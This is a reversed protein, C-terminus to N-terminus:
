DQSKPKVVVSVPQNTKQEIWVILDNSELGAHHGLRVHPQQGEVSVVADRQGWGVVVLALNVVPSEDTAEARLTLAANDDATTRRVVYARQAPEYDGGTFGDGVISLKAPSDWSKALRVIEDPPSDTLGNLMIKTISTATRKYANWTCNTQSSHSARDADMAYRGDSPDFATPWHNWWPFMSVDRRLEGQYPLITPASSAPVVFFPKYTSKTNVLQINAGTPLTSLKPTGQEWSYTHSEGQMNILTVADPQLVQEPRQGPGMVVISEHWEHWADPHTSHLTIERVGIGDPYVTYVEDTWDGWGTLEDVHAFKYWNNVSAYRWHVVVRADSSEIVRVQSHRCQKDSMPEYCGNPGSTETFENNYWIGNETVWNPIYSTGRWFVFRCPSNDFRVVVDANAGVRWQEDWADYYSLTTYFAGFPGPGNPGAPLRREPLEPPNAPRLTTYTKKIEAADLPGDYIKLEDLVGDFYTFVEDTADPRLTGFPKHKVPHKGILLRENTAPSVHGVVECEGVLKGNLYLQMRDNTRYVGAAHTWQNLAIREPSVVSMWKGEVALWLGLHGEADVGFLFGRDNDAQAVMPCWNVPYAGIALWTEVSFGGATPLAFDSNRAIYSDIGGLRLATGSVGPVLRYFGFLGGRADSMEDRVLGHASTTSRDDTAHHTTSQGPAVEAATEPVIEDFRWWAIPHPQEAGNVVAGAITCWSSLFTALWGGRAMFQTQRSIM